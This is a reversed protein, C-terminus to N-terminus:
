TECRTSISSLQGTQLGFAEQSIADANARRDSLRRNRSTSAIFTMPLRLSTFETGQKDLALYPWQHDPTRAWAASPTTSLYLWRGRVKRLDRQGAMQPHRTAKRHNYRELVLPSFRAVRRHIMSHDVHIGREAMREELDRLSLNYALYWRVRPLIVSRNFRRGSFM